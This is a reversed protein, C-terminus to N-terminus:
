QIGGTPQAKVLLEAKCYACLRPEVVPVFDAFTLECGACKSLYFGAKVAIEEAKTM